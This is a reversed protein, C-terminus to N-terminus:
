VYLARHLFPTDYMGKCHGYHCTILGVEVWFSFRSLIICTNGTAKSATINLRQLFVINLNNKLIGSSETDHVTYGRINDSNSGLILQLPNGHPSYIAQM